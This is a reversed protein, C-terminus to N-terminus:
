LIITEIDYLDRLAINDYKGSHINKHCEKCCLIQKRNLQKLVQLFGTVKGKKIHRVHHYELKKTSGCIPCSETELKHKTRWNTKVECLQDVTRNVREKLENLPREARVGKLFREQRKKFIETVDKLTLLEITKRIKKIEIQGEKTKIRKIIEYHFRLNKGHEKRLKFISKRLKQSLTHFCSYTLLYHLQILESIRYLVPAYYEIYGRTVYNYKKIILELDLTTWETKSRGTWKGSKSKRIFRAKELRPFVREKDLGILLEPNTTRQRKRFNLNEKNENKRKYEIELKLIRKKVFQTITFGLFKAKEGYEITTIITKKESLTLHLNEKIWTGFKQKLYEVYERDANIIFIWDDAYRIYTFKIEKSIKSLSPISKQISDLQLFKTKKKEFEQKIKQFEESKPGFNKYANKLQTITLNYRLKRKRNTIRQYYRNVPSKTRGEIRNKEEIEKTIEEHIYKDFEHFYINYLIPSVVSGQATGITNDTRYDLYMTGSKLGENVLKLFKKDEIKKGLIEILKKHNVNDYAGQIDGEIAYRTVRTDRRIKALASHTGLNPRFGFNLEYRAFVPEYIANLIMRMGEQVIRDTFSPIGIPRAQLKKLEENSPAGKKYLENIQKKFNKNTGTKDIYIRRLPKFIFENNKLEQSIKDITDLSTSDATTKDIKPGPTLAGKKKSIKSYAQILLEKDTLLQYLGKFKREESEGSLKSIKNM